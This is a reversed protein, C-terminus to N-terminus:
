IRILLATRKYTYIRQLVIRKHTYIHRRINNEVVSKYM